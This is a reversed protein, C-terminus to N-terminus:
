LIHNYQVELSKPPGARLQPWADDDLFFDPTLEKEETTKRAVPQQAVEKEDSLSPMNLPAAM